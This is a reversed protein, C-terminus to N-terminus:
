VMLTEGLSENVFLRVCRRTEFPAALFECGIIQQGPFEQGVRSNRSLSLQSFFHKPTLFFSVVLTQNESILWDTVFSIGGEGIEHAQAIFYQGKILVGIKFDV